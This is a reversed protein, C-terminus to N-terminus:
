LKDEELDLKLMEKARKLRVSITNEKQKLVKAIERVTMDEYYHLLIVQKYIYPLNYISNLLDISDSNIYEEAADGSVYELAVSDFSLENYSAKRMYNKCINIAISTIWTKLSSKGKFSGYKLYAKYIAEQVADQAFHYDKLLIYCLRTLHQSHEKILRDIDMKENKDNCLM